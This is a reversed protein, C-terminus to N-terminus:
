PILHNYGLYVGVGTVFVLVFVMMAIAMLLFSAMTRWITPWWRMGYLQKYDVVYIVMSLLGDIERVDHPEYWFTCLMAVFGLILLQCCIYTQAYFNEVVTSDPLRPAKRFLWTAFVALLSHYLLLTIAVHQEFWDYIATVKDVVGALAANTSDTTPDFIGKETLAEEDIHIGTVPEGGCQPLVFSVILFSAVVIFLMRIPPFYPQRHGNLFDRIMHGPRLILHVVTRTFVSNALGWLELFNVIANRLTFRQTNAAQGCRPCYNGVYREDCNACTHPQDPNIVAPVAHHGQWRRFLKWRARTRALHRKITKKMM